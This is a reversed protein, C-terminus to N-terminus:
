SLVLITCVFIKLPLISDKSFNLPLEHCSGLFFVCYQNTGSTMIASRIAAPSWDPHLTKLLGVVGSIHPCSMSTGSDVMYPVRRTDFSEETPSAAESYAAIIDVGPATIDPQFVFFFHNAQPLQM